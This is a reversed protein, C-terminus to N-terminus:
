QVSQLAEILDALGTQYSKENKIYHSAFDTSKSVGILDRISTFMAKLNVNYFYSFDTGLGNHILDLIQSAEDSSDRRYKNKLIVDYYQPMVDTYYQYAMKEIVATTTEVNGSISPVCIVLCCDHSLSTYKEVTTDLKPLPIITFNVDSDRLSDLSFFKENLLLVQNNKLMELTPAGEVYYSGENNWLFHVLTEVFKVTNENNFSLYPVGDTDRSCGRIGAAIAFHEVDSITYSAFGYSDAETREGDGNADIYVQSVLDYMEDYTWEGNLVTEYIDNVNGGIDTLMDMNLLMMSSMRFIDPSLDGALFYTHISDVTSEDIYESYWWPKEMDIYGGAGPNLNAFVNDCVLPAVRCQTGYVIDYIDDGASVASFLKMTDEGGNDIYEYIFNMEEMLQANANFVADNLIEGTAEEISVLFSKAGNRFNLISVTEGDLTIDEPVTCQPSTDEMTTDEPPVSESQTEISEPISDSCSIVSPALMLLCILLALTKKM